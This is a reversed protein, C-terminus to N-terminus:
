TRSRSDRREASSAAEALLDLLAAAAPVLPRDAPTIVALERQIAPDTPIAVVQDVGRLALPPLLAVGMGNGVLAVLHPLTDVECVSRRRLGIEACSADIRARLASDARFEVFDRDALARLPVVRRAALPDQNSVALVLAEAGLPRERVRARDWPGDVFALDLEGDITARVLAPVGRNRLRVVVGPHRRHFRALLAPLDVMGLSQIVGIRLQGRLLGRVAAVADRAEETAVLARRASPLLARGAETLEVRRSTRILLEGGLERELARISSSLTSQVVHVRRAARTFHLEEAVAVFHELQRLEM